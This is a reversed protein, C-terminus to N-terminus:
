RRASRTSRVQPHLRVLRVFIAQWASAQLLNSALQPVTDVRLVYLASPRTGCALTSTTHVAHVHSPRPTTPEVSIDRPARPRSARARSSAPTANQARCALLYGKWLLMRVAHVRRQFTNAQKASIDWLARTRLMRRRPCPSISLVTTVLLAPSALRRVASMRICARHALNRFHITELASILRLVSTCLQSWSGCGLLATTAREARM